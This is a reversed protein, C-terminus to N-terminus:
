FQGYKESEKKTISIIIDELKKNTMENIRMVSYNKFCYNIFEIHVNHNNSVFFVKNDSTKFELFKDKFDLFNNIDIKKDFEIMFSEPIKYNQKLKKVKGSYIKKGKDILILKTNVKEVWSIDHTTIFFTTKNKENHEKIFEFIIEKSLIDVGITPEDLYVIEPEHILACIMDSKVREGLSLFKAPKNLVHTINLKEAMYKIREDSVKESVKYLKGVLKLSEIVPIDWILHSKNGISIGIRKLYEKKYKKKLENNNILIKGEDPKLIGLLLKITTSKGAGNPGLYFCIDGKEIEFSIGKLATVVKDKKLKYEKVVNEFKIM